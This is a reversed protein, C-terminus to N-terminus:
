LTEVRNRGNEKALYLAEDCRNFFSKKTDGDKYETLGFSVTVSTNTSNKLEQINEKLKISVAKAERLPTNEFLIVFEEGGWRAFTDSNRVNEDISKAILILIEDGVLHGYTDNFNKFMDIDIIALTLPYKYRKVRSIELEFIEDFKNRNYVGTLADKYAKKETREQKEKLKTIDTLTVLYDKELNTTSIDIRFVKSDFHKDLILVVREEEPTRKILSSFEEGRQLLGTHLYGDINEFINLIENNMNILSKFRSNSFSIHKFDTIFMINDTADLIDDLLRHKEELFEKSRFQLAIIYVLLLSFILTVIRMVLMNKLTLEIFPSKEYSVLWAVTKNKLNKIPLYSSTYIHEKHKVYISFIDGEVIKREIEEKIPKLKIKNEIICENKNHLNGLSMMYNKSEASQSYNLILDDRAWTKSDFIRKDVLFHTHIHSIANLYWQFSESSFSVEMAGIHTGNKDFIPFTNRFGHATKGQTFVRIPKKTKNVYKFDDRINTLDDGFKDPKHMRLFVNNNAFVFHYQLIGQEKGREYLPKLLKYLKDRLLEQKEKKADKAKSIIDIFEDMAITSKYMTSAVMKQTYLLISYHTKLTKRSEQLVLDVRQQTNKQTVFYVSSNIVLFLLLLILLTKIKM